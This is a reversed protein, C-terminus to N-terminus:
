LRVMNSGIRDNMDTLRSRLEEMILPGEKDSINDLEGILVLCLSINYSLIKNFAFDGLKIPRGMMIMM